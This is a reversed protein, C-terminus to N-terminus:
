WVAVLDGIKLLLGGAPGYGDRSEDLLRLEEATLEHCAGLPLRVDLKLGVM